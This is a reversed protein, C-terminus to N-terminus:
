RLILVQTTDETIEFQSQEFSTPGFAGMVNNSFGYQERPLGIFNKDLMKNNNVDHYAKIAYLGSPLDQYTISATAGNVITQTFFGTKSQDNDYDRPSDFLGLLLTGKPIEINQVQITLQHQAHLRTAAILLLLGLLKKNLM